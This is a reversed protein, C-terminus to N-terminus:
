PPGAGSRTLLGVVEQDSVQAFDRYHCSVARFGAPRQLCVIRDASRALLRLAEQPAVPVALTISAVAQLRVAKLAAALTAGTAVGDDVVIVNRGQLPVQARDGLYKRRQRDIETRQRSAEADIYASTAGSLGLLDDNLVVQPEGSGAIAGLAVEPNSPAGIKRVFLLDLEAGLGSAIEAAVPVGGRPVALVVPQAIGEGALVAALRRGADARDEFQQEYLM